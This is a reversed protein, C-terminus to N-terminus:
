DNTESTADLPKSDYNDWLTLGFYFDNFLEIKAKVQFELRIRGISTISPFTNFYSTVDIDPNNFKFIRYKWQMVGELSQIISDAQSKETSVMLGIAGDLVNLNNHIFDKGVALGGYYRYITGLETNQQMGGFATAVM